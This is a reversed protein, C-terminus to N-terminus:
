SLNLPFIEECIHKYLACFTNHFLFYIGYSPFNKNIVVPIRKLCLKTKKTMNLHILYDLSNYTTNKFKWGLKCM